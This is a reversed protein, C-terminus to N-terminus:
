ERNPKITVWEDGVTGYLVLVDPDNQAIEELKTRKLAKAFESNPINM